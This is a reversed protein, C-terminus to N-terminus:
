ITNIKAPLIKFSRQAVYIRHWTGFRRWNSPWFDYKALGHHTGRPNYLQPDLMTIASLNKLSSTLNRMQLITMDRPSLIVGGNGWQKCLDKTMTLMGHGYQLFLNM